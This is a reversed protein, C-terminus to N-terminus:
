VTKEEEPETTTEEKPETTTEGESETTAEQTPVEFRTAKEHFKSMTVGTTSSVIPTADLITGAGLKNVGYLTLYFYTTVSMAEKKGSDVQDYALKAYEKLLDSGLSFELPITEEGMIVNLSLNIKVGSNATDALLLYAEKASLKLRFRYTVSDNGGECKLLALQYEFFRYCNTDYLPLYPNNKDAILGDKTTIIGGKGETSDIIAGCSVVYASELYHGKLDLTVNSYVTLADIEIDSGLVIKNSPKPTESEGNLKNTEMIQKLHKASNVVVTGKSIFTGKIILETTADLTLTVNESVTLTTGVGITIQQMPLTSLDKMLILNGYEQNLSLYGNKFHIRETANNTYFVADDNGYGIWCTDGIYFHGQGYANIQLQGEFEANAPVKFTTNGSMIWFGTIKGGGVSDTIYLKTNFYMTVSPGSLHKGNLDIYYTNNQAFMYGSNIEIDAYLKIESNNKIASKAADWTGYMVGDVSVVPKFDLDIIEYPNTENQRGFWEAENKVTMVVGNAVHTGKLTITYKVGNGSDPAWMAVPSQGDLTTTLNVNELALTCANSNKVNIGAAMGKYTFDKVSVNTCKFAGIGYVMDTLTCKEVTLSKSGQTIHVMYYLKSATSNKIEVTCDNAVVIGKYSNYYTDVSNSTFDCGVFSAEAYRQMDVIVSNGVATDALFKINKLVVTDTTSANGAITMKGIYTYGAGDITIAKGITVNEKINALLTIIDGAEAAEIAAKLTEYEVGNISAVPKFDLDIIEYPLSANQREFWVTENKVTMKEGNATNNGKLYITYVAGEGSDPALMTIPAMSTLTTTVTVNEIHLTGANSNKVQIFTQGSYTVDKVTVNRTKMPRLLYVMNTAECNDVVVENAGAQNTAYLYTLKSASCKEFVVKNSTASASGLVISTYDPTASYTLVCDYFTVNPATSANLKVACTSTGVPPMVVLDTFKLEGSGANLTITGTYSKGEGDITINVGANQAFTFSEDIDSLLTITYTGAAKNAEEMAAQLSSYGQTDIMAVYPNIVAGEALEVNYGENGSFWSNGECPIGNVTFYNTGKVKVTWQKGDGSGSVPVYVSGNYTYININVNELTLEGAADNKIDIGIVADVTVNKVTVSPCKLTRVLYIMNTATVDEVLVSNSGRQRYSIIYQLNDATCNKVTVANSTASSNGYVITGSKNVGQLTCGDFTINPATTANLYITQSNAPAIKADTFSLNGGGANLTIKGSFTHGDGDITINVGSKQEFTFTEASDKILAITYDGAAKNAEAMAAQLTAYHQGCTGDAKLICAVNEGPNNHEITTETKQTPEESSTEVANTQIFFANAPVLGVVMVVALLVSLVKNWRFNM